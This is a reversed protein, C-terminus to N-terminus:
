ECASGSVNIEYFLYIYYAIKYGVFLKMEM